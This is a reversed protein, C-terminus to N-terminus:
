GTRLILHVGSDTTIIESMEGEKMSFTADEFPKQMQGRKFQGLDGGHSASTCDSHQSALEAFKSSLEDPPLAKLVEQHGKLIQIAEELSRTINAEKWSAPRRSGAHKILLHSARVGDSVSASLAGGMGQGTVAGHLLEAGPLKMIDTTSMGPPSDWISQKTVTSYFYPRQRSQSFRVEWQSENSAM